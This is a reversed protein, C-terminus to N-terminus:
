KSPVNPHPRSCRIPAEVGSVHGGRTSRSTQSCGRSRLAEYPSHSPKQLLEQFLPKQERAPRLARPLFGAAMCLSHSPSLAAPAAIQHWGGPPSLLSVSGHPQPSMLAELIWGYGFGFRGVRAKGECIWYMEQM